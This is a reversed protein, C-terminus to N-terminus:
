PARAGPVADAYYRRAVYVLAQGYFLGGIGGAVAAGLLGSGLKAGFVSGLAACAGCAILGAWTQWHRYSKRIVYLVFRGREEETLGTLEPIRDFKWYIPM